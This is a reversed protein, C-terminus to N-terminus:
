SGPVYIESGKALVLSSRFDWGNLANLQEPTTGHRKAFDGFSVKSGRYSLGRMKGTQRKRYKVRKPSLM